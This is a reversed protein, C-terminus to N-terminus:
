LAVDSDWDDASASSDSTSKSWSGTKNRNEGGSGPKQEPEKGHVVMYAGVLGTLANVWARARIESALERSLKEGSADSLEAWFSPTFPFKAVGEGKATFAIYVVNESDRGVFIKSVPAAKETRNGKHDYNAKLEWTFRSPNKDATVMRVVELIEQFIYPDLSFAIPKNNRGDNMYLRFRPNNEHVTFKLSPKGKGDKWEEGNLSFKAHSFINWKPAFRNGESM